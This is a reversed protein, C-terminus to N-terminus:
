APVAKIARELVLAYARQHKENNPEVRILQALRYMKSQLDIPVRRWCLLCMERGISCPRGCGTPCPETM